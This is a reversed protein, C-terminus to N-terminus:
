WTAIEDLPIRRRGPDVQVMRGLLEAERDTLEPCIVRWRPAEWSAFDRVLEDRMDGDFLPEATLLEYALCGLAFYDSEAGLSRGQRQEPSMFRVTGVVRGVAQRSDVHTDALGFDMLKVELGPTLMVNAPKIDRHVIGAQHAYQLASALQNMVHRFSEVDAAGELAIWDGLTQGHCYELVLFYTHFAEFRGLMRIINPHDFSEIIDAEQQFRALAEENYVLRHSMMKLAVQRQRDIDDAAYVVGMGGRGLRRRIRYGSLIKETLADHGIVGLRTSVLHTLEVCLEPYQHALRHFSHATMVLTSVHDKAIAHATRPEATLLAMEGIVSGRDCDGIFHRTGASDDLYVAVSGSLIIVLSDGPDGQRLLYEGPEFERRRTHLRLVSRPVSRLLQTTLQQEDLSLYSVTVDLGREAADDFGGEDLLQQILESYDPFRTTLGEVSLSQGECRAHEAEVLLLEQFLAIREDHEFGALYEEIQPEQDNRLAAEFRDCVTDIRVSLPQLPTEQETNM